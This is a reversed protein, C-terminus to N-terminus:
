GGDPPRQRRLAEPGQDALVGEVLEHEDAVVVGIDLIEGVHRHLLSATVDFRHDAFRHVLDLDLPIEPQVTLLCSAFVNEAPPM